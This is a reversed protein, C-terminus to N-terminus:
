STQMPHIVMVRGIRDPKTEFDVVAVPSFGTDFTDQIALIYHGVPQQVDTFRTM